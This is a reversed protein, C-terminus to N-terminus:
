KTFSIVKDLVMYMVFSSGIAILSLFYPYAEKFQYYFLGLNDKYEIVTLICCVLVVFYAIGLLILGGYPRPEKLVYPRTLPAESRIREMIRLDLGKPPIERCDKLLAKTLRDVEYKNMNM